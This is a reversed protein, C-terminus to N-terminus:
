FSCYENKFKFGVYIGLSNIEKAKQCDAEAKAKEGQKWYYYGRNYYNFLGYPNLEIAKNIDAFSKDFNGQRFYLGARANYGSDDKPELEIVKNFDSLEKDFDRKALYVYGRHHYASAYTPFLEIAKNLVKLAEDNDGKKRYNSALFIYALKNKSDLELAKRFDLIAQDPKKSTFVTGRTSYAVSDNPNQEILKTLEAFFCDFIPNMDRKKTVEECKSFMIREYSSMRCGYNDEQCKLSRQNQGFCTFACFGALFILLNTKSLFYKYFNKM